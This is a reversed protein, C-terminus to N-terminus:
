GPLSFLSYNRLQMRSFRERSIISPSSFLATFSHTIREGHFCSTRTAAFRLFRTSSLLTLLTCNFSGSVEGLHQDCCVLWQLVRPTPHLGRADPYHEHNGHTFFTSCDALANEFVCIEDLPRWLVVKELSTM